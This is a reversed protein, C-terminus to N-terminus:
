RSGEAATRPLIRDLADISTQSPRWTWTGQTGAEPDMGRLFLYAVGGIVPEGSRGSCGRSALWRTLMVAYLAAQLPYLEAAMARHLADPAYAAPESGVFNTKYDYIFWRGDHEVALDISGVLSGLRVGHDGRDLASAVRESWPAEEARMASALQSPAARWPVAVNLERLCRGADRAADAVSLIRADGTPAALALQLGGALTLLAEDSSVTLGEAHRRLAQHLAAVPRGTALSAFAEPEALADHVLTGLAKGQVGVRRLAEDMATVPDRAGDRPTEDSADVDREDGDLRVARKVGSLSTFSFSVAREPVAPTPRPDVLRAANEAPREPLQGPELEAVAVSGQSGDALALLDAQAEASQQMRSEVREDLLGADSEDRAHLLHALPSSAADANPMWVARTVFRARTLGVYLLRRAEAADRDGERPTFLFTPLWTVGFTLGKSGHLTMVQVADVGGLSRCLAEEGRVSGHVRQALWSALAHVTGAGAGQARELEEVVHDFDTALREGQPTALMAFRGHEDGLALALARLAAGVGDRGLREGAERLAQVWADPRELADRVRLGTCVGALAGLTAARDWPRAMAALVQLVAKAADSEWVSQRDTVVAPVGLAQLADAVARGQWHQHCLVAVDGPRLDRWVPLGEKSERVQWGARLDAAIARATVQLVAEAAALPSTHLVLGAPQGLPGRIRPTDHASRVAMAPIGAHMFPQPVGFLHQVADVLTKDSRHSTDLRYAPKCSLDRLRMYADVDANRFAYISQKPDGVLVLRHDPSEAFARRLIEAQAPDTDQVEDVIVVRFRERLARCMAGSPEAVADRLRTILDDFGLTRTLARHALLRRLADRVVVDIAAQGVADVADGVRRLAADLQPLGADALVARAAAAKSANKPVSELLTARKVLKGCAKSVSADPVGGDRLAQLLTAAPGNAKQNFNQEIAVLLAGLSPTALTQLADIARRGAAAFDASTVRDREMRRELAARLGAGVPEVGEVWAALAADPAVVAAWADGCVRQRAETEDAQLTWGQLGHVGAEMPHEQLMRQCFGHITGICARDFEALAQRLALRERSATPACADFAAQLEGRVRQSLEDAAANTFSMVLMRPMPVGERVLRAVLKQIAHTKGTGASAEIVTLGSLDATAADFPASNVM